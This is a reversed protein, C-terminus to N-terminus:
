QGGGNPAIPEPESGPDLTLRLPGGLVAPPVLRARMRRWSLIVDAATQFMEVLLYRVVLVSLFLGGIVALLQM